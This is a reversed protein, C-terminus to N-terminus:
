QFMMFMNGTAADSPVAKTMTYQLVL